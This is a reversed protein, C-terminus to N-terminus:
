QLRLQVVQRKHQRTAQEYLALALEREGRQEYIAGLNHYPWTYAPDLEIAQEYAAIAQDPQDLASYVNGLNTWSVACDTQNLNKEIVQRYM